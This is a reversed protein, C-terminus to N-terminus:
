VHAVEPFENWERGDLLRGAAKKGVHVLSDLPREAPKWDSSGCTGCRDGSSATDYKRGGCGGCLEAGEWDPGWAGWQKFHFAVGAAQCQDRVSRAWDPLMPRAGPGSEGGCVIWDLQGGLIGYVSDASGSPFLHAAFPQFHAFDVSGIAPEYSVWRVAAPTELLLPIREDATAQNEVSVGLWANQLPWHPPALTANVLARRAPSDLPMLELALRLSWVTGWRAEAFFALMREPRKTLVQYVHQPAAAMVGFVAAIEEFTLTEHFLDSMSNVFIRRPRKWRLPQDLHQPWFRVVGNWVPAGNAGVKTLGRYKDGAPGPNGGLRHAERMAYCHTCGPSVLNCGAVPNWSADTWEIKSKDAM